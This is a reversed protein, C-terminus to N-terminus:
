QVVTPIDERTVVMVVTENDGQRCESCFVKEWEIIKKDLLNMCVALQNTTQCSLVAEQWAKIKATDAIVADTVKTEEELPCHGVIFKALYNLM